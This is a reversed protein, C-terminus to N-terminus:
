SLKRWNEETNIEKKIKFCKSCYPKHPHTTNFCKESKCEVLIAQGHCRNCLNYLEFKDKEVKFNNNCKSCAKTLM